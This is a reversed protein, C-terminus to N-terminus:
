NSEASENWRSIKGQKTGRAKDCIFHEVNKISDLTTQKNKKALLLLFPQFSFIM